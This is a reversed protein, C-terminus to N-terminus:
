RCRGARRSPSANRGAVIHTDIAPPEGTPFVATMEAGQRAKDWAEHAWGVARSIRGTAREEGTPDDDIALFALLSMVQTASPSGKGDPLTDGIASKLRLSLRGKDKVFSPPITADGDEGFVEYEVDGADDTTSRIEHVRGAEIDLFDEFARTAEIRHRDVDVARFLRSYNTFTFPKTRFVEYQSIGTEVYADFMARKPRALCRYWESVTAGWLTQEAPATDDPGLAAPPLDDPEDDPEPTPKPAMAARGGKGLRNEPETASIFASRLTNAIEAETLPGSRPGPISRATSALLAVAERTNIESLHQFVRFAHKNLAPNRGGEKIASLEEIHNALVTWGYPTTEEAGAEVEWLPTDYPIHRARVHGNSGAGNPSPVEDDLDLLDDGPITM